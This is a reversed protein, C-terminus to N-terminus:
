GTSNVASFGYRFYSGFAGPLEPFVAAEDLNFGNANAHSHIAVQSVQRRRDKRGDDLIAPASV